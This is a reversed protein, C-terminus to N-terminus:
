PTKLPAFPNSERILKSIHRIITKYNKQFYATPLQRVFVTMVGMNMSNLAINTLLASITQYSCTSLISNFLYCLVVLSQSDLSFREQANQTLLWESLVTGMHNTLTPEMLPQARELWTIFSVQTHSQFVTPSADEVLGAM